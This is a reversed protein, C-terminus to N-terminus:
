YIIYVVLIDLIYYLIIYCVLYTYKIKIYSNSINYNNCSKGFNWLIFFTKYCCFCIRLTNDGVNDDNNQKYKFNNM